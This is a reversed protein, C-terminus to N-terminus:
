SAFSRPMTHNELHPSFAVITAGLRNSDPPGGAQSSGAPHSAARGDRGRAARRPHEPSRPAEVGWGVPPRGRHLAMTGGGRRWQILPEIGRRECDDLKRLM